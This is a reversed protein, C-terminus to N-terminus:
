ARVKQRDGSMLRGKTMRLIRDCWALSEARHAIMLITPRPTLERLRQVIEHEGAVDIASTAEDLILIDSARLLARALALRQREGGSILAGREGVVTDLGLPLRDIIRDAGAVALAASMAAEDAAPNAWLLNRRITDNFMVPDQAVYAIQERWRAVNDESLPVGGITIRGWQPTLLGTLLDALTTKGAGSAGTVGVVEGPDLRLTLGLIGVDGDTGEGQHRYVVGDLEIPGSLRPGAVSSPPAAADALETDIARLAEWAPLAYAIQQLGSQIQMIPGGIRGLVVLLALLLPAPLELLAYGILVMSGAVCAGLLGWLGRLIAQQSMFATQQTASARLDQEFDEVFRGQLNQSMALKMGSLFSGLRTMLSLHAETVLRGVENSQRLLVFMAGAACLMLGVSIMTLLPSLAFALAGYAALMVVAVGSRFLFHVGAGCRDIDGGLVHTVRGHGIRALEQWRAAALRQTIAARQREVFEIQLGGLITDRRWLVFTRLAMLVAFLALILALRTVSPLDPAFQGAWAALTSGGDGTGSEFLIALLPVLLVIGVGELVAGLAVFVVAVVGRRGAFRAVAVAFAWCRRLLDIMAL